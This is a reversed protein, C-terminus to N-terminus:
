LSIYPPLHVITRPEQAVRSHDAYDKIGFCCHQIRSSTLKVQGHNQNFHKYDSRDPAPISLLFFVVVVQESEAVLYGCQLCLERMSPSLDVLQLYSLSRKGRDM